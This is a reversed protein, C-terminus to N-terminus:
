RSGRKRIAKGSLPMGLLPGLLCVDFIGALLPIFGVIAIVIGPTSHFRWGIGILVLGAIIRTIRGSGSALFGLM